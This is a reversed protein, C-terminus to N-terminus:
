KQNLFRHLNVKEWALAKHFLPFREEMARFEPTHISRRNAIKRPPHVAHLLEHYVIFEVFYDPVWDQDLIPHLRILRQDFDFSGFRISRQGRGKRGWTITIDALHDLMPTYADMLEKRTKDLVAQLDHHQGDAIQKDPNTEARIQQRNSDIYDRITERSEPTNATALEALAATTEPDCGVFMHHIRIEHRNNRRKAGVMRRRNDTIILDVVGLIQELQHHLLQAKSISLRMDSPLETLILAGRTSIQPTAGTTSASKELKKLLNQQDM